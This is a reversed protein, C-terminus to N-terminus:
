PLNIDTFKLFVTHAVSRLHSSTSIRIYIVYTSYVRADLRTCVHIVRLTLTYLPLVDILSTTNTLDRNLRNEFLLVFNTTTHNRSANEDVRNKYM